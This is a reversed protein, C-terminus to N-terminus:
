NTEWGANQMFHYEDGSAIFGDTSGDTLIITGNTKVLCQYYRTVNPIQGKFATCNVITDVKPRFGEPITIDNLAAVTNYLSAIVYKGQKKIVNTEDASSGSAINFTGEKFGM